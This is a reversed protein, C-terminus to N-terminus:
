RGGGVGFWKLAGKWDGEYLPGDFDNERGWIETVGKKSTHGCKPVVTFIVDGTELDCIRFDDYLTGNLPCNNKFLLYVKDVDIKPSKAVKRVKPALAYTKSVLSGDKCFWDFWGAACQTKADNHRYDGNVFNEVWQRLTPKDHMKM